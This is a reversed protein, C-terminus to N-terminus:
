KRRRRRPVTFMFNLENGNFFLFINLYFYSLFRVCIQFIIFHISRDKNKIIYLYYQFLTIQM